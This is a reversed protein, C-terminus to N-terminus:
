CVLTLRLIEWGPTTANVQKELLQLFITFSTQKLVNKPPVNEKTIQEVM